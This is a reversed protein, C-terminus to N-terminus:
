KLENDTIEEGRQATRSIGTATHARLIFKTCLDHESFNKKAAM